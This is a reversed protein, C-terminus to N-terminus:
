TDDNGDFDLHVPSDNNPTPGTTQLAVGYIDQTNAIPAAQSATLGLQQASTSLPSAQEQKAGCHPCVSTGVMVLQECSACPQLEPTM